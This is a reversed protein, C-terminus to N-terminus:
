CFLHYLSRLCQCLECYMWIMM